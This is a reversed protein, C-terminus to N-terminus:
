APSSCACVCSVTLHPACALAILAYAYALSSAAVAPPHVQLKTLPAHVMPSALIQELSYVDRFQSYPNNM